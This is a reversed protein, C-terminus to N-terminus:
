GFSKADDRHSSGIREIVSALVPRVEEAATLYSIGLREQRDRLQDAMEEPGGALVFPSNSRALDDLEVGFIRRARDAVASPVPDRGIAAVLNLSLELRDFRDGAEARIYAVREAVAAEGLDNGTGISISDAHQAALALVRDGSGGILLPPRASPLAAIAAKLAAVRGQFPVGLMEFDAADVGAGLGLEFRGATLRQMTSADRAILLAPRWAAVLVFSGVHISRTAAAAAALGPLPSSLRLRDPALIAAFGEAEAGHALEGWDSATKPSTAVLGFRVRGSM